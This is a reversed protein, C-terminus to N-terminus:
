RGSAARAPPDGTRQAEAEALIQHRREAVEALVQHRGEAAEALVRHQGEAGEALVLGLVAVEV